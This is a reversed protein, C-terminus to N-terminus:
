LMEFKKYEDPLPINFKECILKIDHYDNDDLEYGSHFKVLDEPSICKVKHDGIIGTGTLSNAPFMEGNEPPGYIGNGKEDLVIVHFDIQHGADDGLVFNHERTDDRPVNKYNKVELLGRLKGLDKKEVVIDLDSHERTQEGLLADVGWGGDVWIDINNRKCLDLFQIIEELKM